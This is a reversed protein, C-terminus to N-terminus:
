WCRRVEAESPESKERWRDVPYPFAGLGPALGGSPGPQVWVEEGLM